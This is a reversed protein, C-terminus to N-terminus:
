QRGRITVGVRPKDLLGLASEKESIEAMAQLFGFLARNRKPRPDFRVEARMFDHRAHLGGPGLSSGQRRLAVVVRHDLNVPTEAHMSFAPGVGPPILVVKGREMWPDIWGRWGAVHAEVPPDVAVPGVAMVRWMPSQAPRRPDSHLDVTVELDGLRGRVQPGRGRVNEVAGDRLSRRVEDLVLDRTRGTRGIGRFVRWAVIVVVAAAVALLLQSM